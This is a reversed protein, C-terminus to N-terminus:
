ADRRPLIATVTKIFDLLQASPEFWEGHLRDAEFQKHLDAELASGGAVSVLLQLPHASSTQLQTLRAQVDRSVGIKIPGNAGQQVFYVSSGSADGMASDRLVVLKVAKKFDDPKPRNAERETQQEDGLLKQWNHAMCGLLQADDGGSPIRLRTEAQYADKAFAAALELACRSHLILLTAGSWYVCPGNLPKFCRFCETEVTRGVMAPWSKEVGEVLFGYEWSEISAM